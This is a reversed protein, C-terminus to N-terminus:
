RQQRSWALHDVIGLGAGGPHVWRELCQRKRTGHVRRRICSTRQIQRVGSFLNGGGRCITTLQIAQRKRGCKGSEAACAITLACVGRRM